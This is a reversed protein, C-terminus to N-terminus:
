HVRAKNILLVYVLCDPHKGLDARAHSLASTAQTKLAGRTVRNQATVEALLLFERSKDTAPFLTTTDPQFNPAAFPM